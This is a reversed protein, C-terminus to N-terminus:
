AGPANLEETLTEEYEQQAEKSEELADAGAASQEAAETAHRDSLSKIYMATALLERDTFQGAYSPMQAPWGQVIQSNPDLISQRIYNLDVLASDGNTFRHTEGWINKWTPGSGASGDVSHCAACGKAAYLQEGLQVLPIGSTDKQAELWREYDSQSLTVVRHGMQSHQDGCYEACFLYYGHRTAASTGYLPHSPDVIVETDLPAGSADIAILNADADLTHTPAGEAQFWLTTYRNPFVDRKVRFDPIYFSHIVDRSTMTVKVPRDVPFAFITADKNAVRQTALPKVGEPYELEWNWKWATVFIEEADAPAVLKEIYGSMGIVFMSAFGIAPIVSWVIELKTNHASSVMPRSGARKTYKVFFVLALGIILVFSILSVWFIFHFAFDTKDAFTSSANRFWLRTYWSDAITTPMMGMLEPVEIAGGTVFWCDSGEDPLVRSGFWGFEGAAGSLAGLCCEQLM